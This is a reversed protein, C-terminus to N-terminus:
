PSERQKWFSGVFSFFFGGLLYILESCVDKRVELFLKIQFLLPSCDFLRSVFGNNSLMYCNMFVQHLGLKGTAASYFNVICTNPSIPPLIDEAKTINYEKRILAHADQLARQVLFRFRLPIPPVDSGDFSRIVIEKLIGIWALVCWRCIFNQEMKTGQDIFDGLDLM